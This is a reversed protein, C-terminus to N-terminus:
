LRVKIRVSWLPDDDQQVTHASVIMSKFKAIFEDVQKTTAKGQIRRAERAFGAALKEAELHEALADEGRNISLPTGTQDFPEDVEGDDEEEEDEIEDRVVIVLDSM